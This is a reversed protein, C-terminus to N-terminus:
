PMPEQSNQSKIYDERLFFAAFLTSLIQSSSPVAKLLIVNSLNRLMPTRLKWCLLDLLSLLRYRFNGVRYLLYFQGSAQVIIVFIM